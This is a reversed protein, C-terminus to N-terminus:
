AAFKKMAGQRTMGIIEGIAQWTQGQERADRVAEDLRKDARVTEVLAQYVKILAPDTITMEPEPDAAIEALLEEDTKM